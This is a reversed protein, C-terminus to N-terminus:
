IALKLMSRGSGNSDHSMSATTILCIPICLHVDELFPQHARILEGCEPLQLSTDVNPLHISQLAEM